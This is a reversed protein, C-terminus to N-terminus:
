SECGAGDNDSDLDYPDYGTVAVSGTYAPGDGTGGECDYDAAPPLCPDYGDTCNEPEPAPAPAAAAAQEQERRQQARRERRLAALRAERRREIRALRRQQRLRDRRAEMRHQRADTRKSTGGFGGFASGGRGSGGTELECAAALLVLAAVWVILKRM